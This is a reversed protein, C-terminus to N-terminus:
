RNLMPIVIALKSVYLLESRWSSGPQKSIKLRLPHMEM